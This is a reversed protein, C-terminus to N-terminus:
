PSMEAMRWSRWGEVAFNAWCSHLSEDVMMTGAHHGGNFKFPHPELPMCFHGEGGKMCKDYTRYGAPMSRREDLLLMSNTPENAELLADESFDEKRGKIEWTFHLHGHHTQQQRLIGFPLLLKIHRHLPM